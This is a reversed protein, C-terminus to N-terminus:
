RTARGTPRDRGLDVQKNGLRPMQFNDIQIATNVKARGLDIVLQTEQAPWELKVIEPCAIQAFIGPAREISQRAVRQTTSSFVMKSNADYVTRSVIQPQSGTAEGKYFVTVKSGKQGRVNTEEILRFTTRDEEMRAGPAAGIPSMGLADLVWEAQFPYPLEVDGKQYDSHSCFFMADSPDRKVFFWFREDNSGVIVEQMGFKKGVLKLFRPKQCLLTGGDLTASGAPARVDISVDRTEISTILAAQKNLYSVLQDATPKGNATPTPPPRNDARDSPRPGFLNCGTLAFPAAMAGALVQRRSPQFRDRTM